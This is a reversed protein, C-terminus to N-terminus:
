PLLRERYGVVPMLCSEARGFWRYRHRAIFDYVADRLPRPIVKLWAFTRWLGGLERLARLAGDSKVFLREEGARGANEVLVLTSLPAPSDAHRSLIGAATAGQLPAFRLKGHRDRPLIFKVWGHCLACEGDFLLVLTGEGQPKTRPNM